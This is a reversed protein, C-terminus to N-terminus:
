VGAGPIDMAGRMGSMSVAGTPTPLITVTGDPQPNVQWEPPVTPLEPLIDGTIASAQQLTQVNLQALEFVQLAGTGLASAVDAPSLQLGSPGPSNWLAQWANRHEAIMVTKIRQISAVIKAAAVSAPSSATNNNFIGM